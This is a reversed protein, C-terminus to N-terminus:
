ASKRQKSAPKKATAEKAGKKGQIPMLMEKQGASAKRSKEAPKAPPSSAKGISQRFADMLDVVNEGRTRSKGTVPKGSRKMNILEVLAAEYRDEFKGPEFRGAKQNVIHQALDLM